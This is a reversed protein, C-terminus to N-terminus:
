FTGLYSGKELMERCLLLKVHLLSSMESILWPRLNYTCFCFQFIYFLMGLSRFGWVLFIRWGPVSTYEICDLCVYLFLHMAVVRSRSECSARLHLLKQKTVDKLLTPLGMERVARSMTSTQTEM